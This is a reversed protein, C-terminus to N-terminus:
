SVLIRCTEKEYIEIANRFDRTLEIAEYMVPIDSALGGYADWEVDPVTACAFTLGLEKLNLCSEMADIVFGYHLVGKPKDFFALGLIQNSDLSLLKGLKTRMEAIKDFREDDNLDYDKMLCTVQM